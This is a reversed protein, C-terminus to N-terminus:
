LQSTNPLITGGWEIVTFGTRKFSPLEQKTHFVNTPSSNFLIYIRRMSTPKPTIDIEAIENAYEDDVLFQINAYSNSTIKPGWFTIFDTQEKANLGLTKLSNELFSIVSDTNIHFGKHKVFDLENVMNAEWFLYPYSNENDKLMGNPLAKVEWKKHYSPYTFTVNGKVKLTVKIDEEKKPYLYIIPKLAIKQMSANLYFDIEVRHQSRFNHKATIVETHGSKFAYLMTDSSTIAFSYNGYQDTITFQTHDLTSVRVGALPRKGISINGYVMSSNANITEDVTDSKINHDLPTQGAFSCLYVTIFLGTFVYKM